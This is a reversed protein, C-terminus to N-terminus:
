PYVIASLGFSDKALHSPQSRYARYGTISYLISTSYLLYIIINNINDVFIYQLVISKKPDEFYYGLFVPLWDTIFRSVYNVHWYYKILPQGHHCSISPFGPSAVRSLIPNLKMLLYHFSRFLLLFHLRVSIL